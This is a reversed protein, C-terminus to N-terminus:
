YEGYIYISSGAEMTTNSGNKFSFSSIDSYTISNLGYQLAMNSGLFRNSSYAPYLYAGNRLTGGWSIQPQFWSYSDGTKTNIYAVIASGHKLAVDLRIRLFKSWNIDEVSISIETTDSRSTYSKLLIQNIPAELFNNITKIDDSNKDVMKKLKEVVEQINDAEM